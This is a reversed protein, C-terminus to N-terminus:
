KIGENLPTKLLRNVTLFLVILMTLVLAATFLLAYPLYERYFIGCYLACVAASVLALAGCEKLLMGRLRTKTAGLLEMVMLRTKQKRLWEAALLAGTLLLSLLMLPLWSASSLMEFASSMYGQAKTAAIVSVGYADALMASFAHYIQEANGDFCDITYLPKEPTRAARGNVLVASDWLTPTDYGVVGLVAFPLGDVRVTNTDAEYQPSAYVQKGIVALRDATTFDGATFFRGRTMMIQPFRGTFFFTYFSFGEAAETQAYIGVNEKRAAFFNYIREAPFAEEDLAVTVTEQGFAPGDMCLMVNGVSMHYATNVLVIPALIFIALIMLRLGDARKHM